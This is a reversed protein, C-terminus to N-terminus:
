VRRFESIQHDYDFIELGLKRINECWNEIKEKSKSHIGFATRELLDFENRLTTPMIAPDDTNVCVKMRSTRIKYKNFKPNDANLDLDDCEIPNWRFIPHKDYSHIHAICVNSSPNTEIIIGKECFKQILRDQVAEILELDEDTIFYKYLNRNINEYEIKIVEDGKKRVNSCTHYKHYIKKAKKYEEECLKQNDFDAIKLYEDAKNLMEDESFMVIPCFERLKWAKYIDEIECSLEENKSLYIEKYLEKIVRAYKERLKDTNKYYPLVEISQHYLWV